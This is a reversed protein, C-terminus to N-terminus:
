NPLANESFSSTIPVLWGDELNIKLFYEANEDAAPIIDGKKWLVREGDPGTLVVKDYSADYSVELSNELDYLPASEDTLVIFIHKAGGNKLRYDWTNLRNYGLQICLTREDSPHPYIRQSNVYIDEEPYQLAIYISGDSLTSVEAIFPDTRAPLHGSLFNEVPRYLIATLLVLSILTCVTLLLIRRLLIRRKFLRFSKRVNRSNMITQVSKSMSEHLKQCSECTKLHNEVYERSDDSCTGDVYLPLLDETIKCPNM